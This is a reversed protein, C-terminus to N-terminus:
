DNAVLHTPNMCLKNGCSHSVKKGETIAGHLMGYLFRHAPRSKGAEWFVAYGGRSKGAEWQWCDDHAGIHVKKWFRANLYSEEAVWFHEALWSLKVRLPFSWVSHMQSRRVMRRSGKQKSGNPTFLVRVELFGRKIADNLEEHSLGSMRSARTLSIWDSDADDTFAARRALDPPCPFVTAGAPTEMNKLLGRAEPELDRWNTARKVTYESDTRVQLGIVVRGNWVEIYPEGADIANM